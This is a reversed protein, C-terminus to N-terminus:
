PSTIKDERIELGKAYELRTGSFDTKEDRKCGEFKAYRLDSGTFDTGRVNAERLDAFRLDANRLLAGRLDANSLDAGYLQAHSLKANRLDAEQLRTQILDVGSPLALFADELDIGSLDAKALFVFSKTEWIKLEDPMREGADILRAEFLFELLARKRKPNLRGLISLTRSRALQRVVSHEKSNRLGEKLLLDTMRDFYIQLASERMRDTEFERQAERQQGSFWWAGGALLVPVILLEMWDWLTKGRHTEYTDTVTGGEITTTRTEYGGFGTGFRWVVLGILLLVVLGAVIRTATTRNMGAVKIRKM